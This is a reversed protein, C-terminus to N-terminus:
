ENEVSEKDSKSVAWLSVQFIEETGDMKRRKAVGVFSPRTGKPIKTM